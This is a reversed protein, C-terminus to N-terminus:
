TPAFIESAHPQRCDGTALIHWDGHRRAATGERFMRRPREDPENLVGIVYARLYNPDTDPACM